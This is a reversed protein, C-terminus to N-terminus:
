IMCALVMQLDQMRAHPVPMAIGFMLRQQGLLVPHGVVIVEIIEDWHREM